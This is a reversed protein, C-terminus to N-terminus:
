LGWNVEGIFVNDLVVHTNELRGSMEPTYIYPVHYDIFMQKPYCAQGMLIVKNRTFLCVLVEKGM